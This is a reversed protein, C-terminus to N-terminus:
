ADRAFVGRGPVSYLFGEEKLLDVARQVTMHSVDLENAIQQRTPLKPGWRGDVVRARIMESVQVYPWDPSDPDIPVATV